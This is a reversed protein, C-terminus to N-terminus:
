GHRDLRPVRMCKLQERTASQHQGESVRNCRRRTAGHDRSWSCRSNLRWSLSWGSKLRWCSWSGSRGWSRNWSGRSGWSPMDPVDLVYQPCWVALLVPHDPDIAREGARRDGGVVPVKDCHHHVVLQVRLPNDDMPMSDFLYPAEDHKHWEIDYLLLFHLDIISILLIIAENLQTQLIKSISNKYM